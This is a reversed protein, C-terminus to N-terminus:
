LYQYGGDLDVCDHKKDLEEFFVLADSDFLDDFEVVEFESSCFESPHVIDEWM